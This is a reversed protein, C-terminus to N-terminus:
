RAQPLAAPTLRVNTHANFGNDELTSNTTRNMLHPQSIAFNNNALRKDRDWFKDIDGEDTLVFNEPGNSMSHTLANIERMSTGVIICDDVHPLIIM